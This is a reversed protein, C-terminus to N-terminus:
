FAHRRHILSGKWVTPGPFQDNDLGIEVGAM